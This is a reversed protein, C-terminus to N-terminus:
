TQLRCRSFLMVVDASESDTSGGGGGGGVDSVRSTKELEELLGSRLLLLSKLLLHRSGTMSDEPLREFLWACGAEVVLSKRGESRSNAKFRWSLALKCYVGRLPM